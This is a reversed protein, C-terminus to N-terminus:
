RNSFVIKKSVDFDFLEQLKKKGDPLIYRPSATVFLIDHGQKGFMNTITEVCYDLPKLREIVREDSFLEPFHYRYKRNVFKTM